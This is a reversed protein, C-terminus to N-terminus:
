AEGAVLVREPDELRFSTEVEWAVNDSIETADLVVTVGPGARAAGPAVVLGPVVVAGALAEALGRGLVM